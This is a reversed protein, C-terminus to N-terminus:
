SGGRLEGVLRELERSVEALWDPADPGSHYLHVALPGEGERELNVGLIQPLSYQMPSLDSHLKAFDGLHLRRLAASADLACDAQGKLLASLANPGAEQSHSVRLSPNRRVLEQWLAWGTSGAPGVAFRAKHEYLDSFIKLGRDARCYFALEMRYLPLGPHGLRNLVQPSFAAECEGKDLRGLNEGAGATEVNVVNRGPLRFRLNDTLLYELSDRPGSCIKLGAHDSTPKTQLRKAALNIEESGQFDKLAVLSVDVATAPHGELSGESYFGRMESNHPITVVKLEPFALAYRLIPDDARSVYFLCSLEKSPDAPQLLLGLAKMSSATVERTKKLNKFWNSALTEYTVRAGSTSPSLGIRENATLKAEAAKVTQRCILYPYEQYLRDAVPLFKTSNETEYKKLADSQVIAIQCFGNELARLRSLSGGATVVGSHLNTAAALRRALDYGYSGPHGACFTLDRGVDFDMFLISGLHRRVLNLHKQQRQMASAFYLSNYDDIDEGAVRVLEGAQCEKPRPFRPKNPDSQLPIYVVEVSRDELLRQAVLLAGYELKCSGKERLAEPRGNPVMFLDGKRIDKFNSSIRFRQKFDSIEPRQLLGANDSERVSQPSAAKAVRYLLYTPFLRLEQGIGAAARLSQDIVAGHGAYVYGFHESYYRLEESIREEFNSNYQLFKNVPVHVVDAQHFFRLSQKDSTEQRVRERRAEYPSENSQASAFFSVALTLLIM